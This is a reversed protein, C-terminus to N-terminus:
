DNVYNQVCYEITMANTKKTLKKNTQKLIYGLEIYIVFQNLKIKSYQDSNM